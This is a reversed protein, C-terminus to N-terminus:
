SPVTCLFFRRNCRPREGHRRRPPLPNRWRPPCSSVRRRQLPSPGLSCAPRDAPRIIAPTPLSPSWAAPSSAWCCRFLPLGRRWWASSMQYLKIGSAWQSSSGRRSPARVVIKLSDAGSVPLGVKLSDAGRRLEGALLGSEGQTEGCATGRQLTQRSTGTATM